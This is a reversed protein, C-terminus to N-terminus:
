AAGKTLAIILPLLESVPIYIEIREKGARGRLEVYGDAVRADLRLPTPHHGAGIVGTAIITSSPNRM